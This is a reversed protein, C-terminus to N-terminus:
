GTCNKKKKQIELDLRKKMVKVDRFICPVNKSFLRVTCLCAIREEPRYEHMALQM